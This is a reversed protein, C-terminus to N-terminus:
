DSSEAGITPTVRPIAQRLVLLSNTEIKQQIKKVASYLIQYPLSKKGDKMIRNVVINVLRNRFILDSQFSYKKLSRIQSKPGM